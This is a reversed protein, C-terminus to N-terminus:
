ATCTVISSYARISLCSAHVVGLWSALRQLRRSQWVKSRKLASRLLLSFCFPFYLLDIDVSLYCISLFCHCVQRSIYSRNYILQNVPKSHIVPLSSLALTVWMQRMQHIWQIQVSSAVCSSGKGTDCFCM